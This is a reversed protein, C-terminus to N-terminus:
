DEKFQDRDQIYQSWLWVAALGLVIERLGDFYYIIAAIILTIMALDKFIDGWQDLRALTILTKGVKYALYGAFLILSLGLAFFFVNYLFGQEM